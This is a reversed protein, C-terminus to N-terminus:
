FLMGRLTALVGRHKDIERKPIRFSSLEGRFVAAAIPINPYLTVWTRRRLERTEEIIRKGGVFGECSHLDADSLVLERHIFETGIDEDFYLSGVKVTDGGEGWDDKMTPRSDPILSVMMEQLKPIDYVGRRPAVIFDITHSWYSDRCPIYNKNRVGVIEIDLNNKLAAHVQTLASM